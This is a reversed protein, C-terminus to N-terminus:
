YDVPANVTDKIVKGAVEGAKGVVAGVAAGLKARPPTVDDPRKTPDFGMTSLVDLIYKHPDQNDAKVIPTFVRLGENIRNMPGLVSKPVEGNPYMHAFQPRVKVDYQNNKESYRVEFRGNEVASQQLQQVNERYLGSFANISWKQYQNWLKPDGTSKIRDTVEPSALKGFIIPQANHDFMSLFGLNRDSFLTNGITQIQDPRAHKDTLLNAHEQITAFNIQAKEDQSLQPHESVRKVEAGLSTTQGALTKFSIAGKMANVVPTFTSPNAGYVSNLLQEGHMKQLVAYNLFVGTKDAQIIDATRQDMQGKVVNAWYSQMGYQSNTVSSIVNDYLKLAGEARKDAEESGFKGTFSVGTKPDIAGADKLLEAKMSARNIAYQNKLFEQRQATLPVGKKLEADIENMSLGSAELKFSLRNAVKTAMLQEFKDGLQVKTFDNLEKQGALNARFRTMDHDMGEATAVMGVITNFPTKGNIYSNWAAPGVESGLKGVNNQVYTKEKNGQSANARANADLDDTLSKKLANMPNVGLMTTAMSIIDDKHGPFQLGMQKVLATMKGYYMSNGLVGSDYQAKLDEMTEGLRAVGAPVGKGAKGGSTMPVGGEPDMINAMSSSDGKVNTPSTGAEALKAAQGVGFQDQIEDIGTRLRNQFSEKMLSDTAKVGSDTVKALNDFISSASTTGRVPQSMAKDTAQPLSLYSPDNTPQIGPALTAM